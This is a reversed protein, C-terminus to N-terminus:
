EKDVLEMQHRFLRYCEKCVGNKAYRVSIHNNRCAKGNWYLIYGLEQAELKTVITDVEQVPASKNPMLDSPAPGKGSWKPIEIVGTEATGVEAIHGVPQLKEKCKTCTYYGALAKTHKRKSLYHTTCNCKYRFPTKRLTAQTMIYSHTRAPDCGMKRMIKKWEYGHGQVTGFLVQAIYHAVEHVITQRFIDFGNDMSMNLNFRLCQAYVDGKIRHRRFQFMGAAHGQLDCKIPIRKFKCEFLMEAQAMALEVETEIKQKM